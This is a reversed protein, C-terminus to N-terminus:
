RSSCDKGHSVQDVFRLVDAMATGSADNELVLHPVLPLELFGGKCPLADYLRRHQEPPIVEDRGGSLVLVPVRMSTAMALSDFRERLLFTPVM